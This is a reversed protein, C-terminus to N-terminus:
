GCPTNVAKQPELNRGSRQGDQDQQRRGGDREPLATAPANLASRNQLMWEAWRKRYEPSRVDRTNRAAYRVAFSTLQQTDIPAEFTVPEGALTTGDITKTGAEGLSFSAALEVDKLFGAPQCARNTECTPIVEQNSLFRLLGDANARLTGVQQEILEQTVAGSQLAFGLLTSLGTRTAATETGIQQNVRGREATQLFRRFDDALVKRPIAYYALGYPNTGLVDALSDIALGRTPGLPLNSLAFASLRDALPREAPAPAQGSAAQALPGLALLTLLVRVVRKRPMSTSGWSRAREAALRPAQASIKLPRMEGGGCDEVLEVVDGANVGEIVLTLVNIGAVLAPLTFPSDTVDIDKTGLKAAIVPIPAKNGDRLFVKPTSGTTGLVDRNPRPDPRSFM